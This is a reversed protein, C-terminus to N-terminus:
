EEFEIKTITLILIDTSRKTPSDFTNIHFQKAKHPEIKDMFYKKGSHYSPPNIVFEGSNIAQGKSNKVEYSVKVSTITKETKNFVSIGEIVKQAGTLDYNDWSLNLLEVEVSSTNRIIVKEGVTAGEKKAAPPQTISKFNNLSNIKEHLNEVIMDHNKAASTLTNLLIKQSDIISLLDENKSNSYKLEDMLNQINDQYLNNMTEDATMFSYLSILSAIVLALILIFTKSKNKLKANDRDRKFTEFQNKMQSEKDVLEREKEKVKEERRRLDEEKTKNYNNKNDTSQDDAKGNKYKQYYTLRQYDYTKRSEINSLINYAENIDKFREEFYKDGQNKDPHYKQSMLRYAKKVAETTDNPEIGLILYYDKM